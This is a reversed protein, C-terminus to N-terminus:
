PHWLYSIKVFIQRGDNLFPGHGHVLGIGNPDCVGNIRVCLGPDINELNSNYGAYIATGPHLLYSILFDFNMNKTTQLSSFQQNALLGNYQAIFRVSLAPTFQYNWKSRIIHNNFVAHDVPNHKVRDLIYTNDIQLNGFPKVSATAFATTEDGENPLQGSPVVVNVAGQRFVNMNLTLQRWPSTRFVLGAFDQTFKRNFTLGSFDVPRLTDSEIGVIPAIITNRHFGFVWDFNLNYEVGLGTHDWTRDTNLEPGYIIMGTKRRWYFHYYDNLRRIDTRRTFGLATFFQPSIDQYELFETFREGQGYFGGDHDSGFSYPTTQSHDFTSSVVGRYFMNWNKNLKFVFDLGGVHNFDTSFERDTYILGVTSNKGVDYAVRGVAFYARQGFFPDGPLVRQGASRDDAVLLGMTWPGEKGTLRTGFQPDAIRRTFLLSNNQFPQLNEFFNSNELFFPRKEPFFVEFRQNVTNQPQDSEVQSFDPEITADLVLSDKFVFKADLGGKGDFTKSDLVPNTPVDQNISRFSRAFVYPNFQMNRGPSIGELGTVTAEQNLQGQIKSSVRPFFDNEDARPISRMFTVGWDPVTAGARFRLARFPIAQIVVYGERTVKGATNWVTDWSNDTGSGNESYLGDAQIGFPNTDFVLAHRQDHFTDLMLEVYDDDYINERRSMHARIKGPEKDFCLWVVYLNQNDYGMYVDTRQTPEDGDKPNRQVFGSIKLLDSRSPEFMSAFEEIKPARDVHPIHVTKSAIAVPMTAMANPRPQLVPPAQTPAQDQFLAALFLFSATVLM